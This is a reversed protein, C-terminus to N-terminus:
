PKYQTKKGGKKDGTMFEMFFDEENQHKKGAKKDMNMFEM